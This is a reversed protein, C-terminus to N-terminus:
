NSNGGVIAPATPLTAVICTGANEIALNCNGSLVLGASNCGFTNKYYSSCSSVQFVGLTKGTIQTCALSMSSETLTVAKGSTCATM